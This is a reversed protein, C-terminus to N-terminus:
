LSTRRLWHKHIVISAPVTAVAASLGASPCPSPTSCGHHFSLRAFMRTLRKMCGAKWELSIRLRALGFSGVALVHHPALLCGYLRAAGRPPKLLQAPLGCDSLWDWIDSGWASCGIVRASGSVRLAAGHAVIPRGRVM